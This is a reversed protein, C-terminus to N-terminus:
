SLNAFRLRRKEEPEEAISEVADRRIMQIGGHSQAVPAAPTSRKMAHNLRKVVSFDLSRKPPDTRAMVLGEDKRLQWLRVLSGVNVTGGTEHVFVIEGDCLELGDGVSADIGGQIERRTFKLQPYERVLELAVDETMDTSGDDVVVVEFQMSMDPIVDLLEDIQSRLTSQANHVPLIVSLSPEM